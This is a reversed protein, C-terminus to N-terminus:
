RRPESESRAVAASKDPSVVVTYGLTDASGRSCLSLQGIVALFLLLPLLLGGLLRACLALASHRYEGLLLMLILAMAKYCAVTVENGRASVFPQGFGAETLLTKLGSPTFRWYDYPIYHWRAAFPVTLLLCGDPKLVRRAEALFQMPRVVHELTETAIVADISDSDVPWTEGDFYITDPIRYGFRALAESTDIGVYKVNDALLMRYPQAGCGVDLVTGRCQSLLVKLDNWISSAQLDFLRRLFAIVKAKLTVPPQFPPPRWTEHQREVLNDRHPLSPANM